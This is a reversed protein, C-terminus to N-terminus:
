GGIHVFGTYGVEDNDAPGCFGTITTGSYLLYHRENTGDITMSVMRYDRCMGEHEAILVALLTMQDRFNSFTLPEAGPYCKYGYESAAAEGAHIQKIKYEAM